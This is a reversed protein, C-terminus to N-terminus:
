YCENLYIGQDRLNVCTSAGPYSSQPPAEISPAYSQHQVALDEGFEKMAQPGGAKARELSQVFAEAWAANKARSEELHKNMREESRKRSDGIPDASYTRQTACGTTALLLILVYKM